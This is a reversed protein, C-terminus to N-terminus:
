FTPAAEDPSEALAAAHPTMAEAQAASPVVPMASSSVPPPESASALAELRGWHAGLTFAVIVAGALVSAHASSPSFEYSEPKYSM